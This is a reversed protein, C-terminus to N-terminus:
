LLCNLEMNSTQCVEKEKKIITNVVAEETNRHTITEPDEM